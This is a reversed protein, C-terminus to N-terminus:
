LFFCEFSSNISRERERDQVEKRESVAQMVEELERCLWQGQQHRPDQKLKM